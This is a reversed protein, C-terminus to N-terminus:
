PTLMADRYAERSRKYAAVVQPWVRAVDPQESFLPPPSDEELALPRWDWLLRAGFSSYFLAAEVSLSAWRGLINLQLRALECTAVRADEAAALIRPDRVSLLGRAEDRPLTTAADLAASARAASMPGGARHGATRQAMAVAGALEAGIPVLLIREVTRMDQDAYGAHTGRRVVRGETQALKGATVAPTYMIRRAGLGRQEAENTSWFSHATGYTKRAAVLITKQDGHDFARKADEREDPTADKPLHTLTWGDGTLREQLVRLFAACAREGDLLVLTKRHEGRLLPEASQAFALGFREARLHHTLAGTTWTNRRGTVTERAGVPVFLVLPHPATWQAYRTRNRDVSYVFLSLGAFRDLPVASPLANVGALDCHGAVEDSPPRIPPKPGNGQGFLEAARFPSQVGAPTFWSLLRELAEPQDVPPTATMGVLVFRDPYPLAARADLAQNLAHVARAWSGAADKPDALEHIEDIIVLTRALPSEAGAGAGAGAGDLLNGLQAMSIISVPKKESVKGVSVYPHSHPDAQLMDEYQESTLAGALGDKFVASGTIKRAQDDQQTKNPLSLLIRDVEPGGGDGSVGRLRRVLFHQILNASIFSKGSGPPAIVLQERRRLMPFLPARQWTDLPSDSALEGREDAHLEPLTDALYEQLVASSLRPDAWIPSDAPPLIREALQIERLRVFFRLRRREFRRVAQVGNVAAARGAARLGVLAAFTGSVAVEGVDHLDWLRRAQAVAM